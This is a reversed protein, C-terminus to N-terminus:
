LFTRARLMPIEEYYFFDNGPWILEGRLKHGGDRLRPAHRPPLRLLSRARDRRVQDCGVAGLFQAPRTGAQPLCEDLVSVRSWSVVRCIRSQCLIGFSVM